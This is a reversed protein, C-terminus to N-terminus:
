KWEQHARNLTEPLGVDLWYEHVPFAAVPHEHKVAEEFLQPMDFFQDSPVLNLITPDLLYIGANVYHTLVPKEELGRVAVGNTHVVGYPIQTTHERVCLTAHASQETHFRLLRDYQVRTLVDGNLVLVPHEFMSPLLSLAGATGLPKSEELYRISVDWSRGDGFHDQIVEKLYNVSFYFERFGADICQELIIELIPKNGVPLMPKPCDSTLHKLRQGRGGAMIVVPNPRAQQQIIEEILFLRIVCGADDLVPVQHIGRRHMLRLAEGETATSPLWHFNTNMIQTVPTEMPLGKLLARRFDGDTVTGLLRSDQEVVLVIQSAGADIAQVVQKM